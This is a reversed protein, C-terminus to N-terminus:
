LLTKSVGKTTKVSYLNNKIELVAYGCNLISGHCLEDYKAFGISILFSRILRGHAVVLLTKNQHVAATKQIWKELRRAAEEETELSPHARVKMKEIGKLEQKLLIDIAQLKKVRTHSSFGWDLERLLKSKHPFLNKSKAIIEATQKARRLDSSFIADINVKELDAALLHAQKLGLDTLKSGLKTNPTQISNTAEFEANHQSQGHRALYVTTSVAHKRM